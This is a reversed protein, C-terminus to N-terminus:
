GQWGPELGPLELPEVAAEATKPDATSGQQEHKREAVLCTDGNAVLQVLRPHPGQRNKVVLAEVIDVAGRDEEKLQVKRLIIGVDADSELRGSGRFDSMRPEREAGKKVPRGREIDRSLPTAMLLFPTYGKVVEGDTLARLRDIAESLVVMEQRPDGRGIMGVHDLFVADYRHRTASETVQRISRGHTDGGHLRLHLELEQLQAMALDFRGREVDSFPHPEEESHAAQIRRIGLGSFRALAQLALEGPTLELSVFLVRRKQRAANVAMNWMTVTKYSGPRGGLVWFRGSAPACIRELAPFLLPVRVLRRLAEVQQGAAAQPSTLPMVTGSTGSQQPASGPSPSTTHM